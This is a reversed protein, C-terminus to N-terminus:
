QKALRELSNRLFELGFSDESLRELYAVYEASVKGPMIVRIAKALAAQDKIQKQFDTLDM